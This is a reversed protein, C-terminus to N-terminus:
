TLPSDSFKCEIVLLREREGGKVKWLSIDPRGRAKKAIEKDSDVSLLRSGEMDSNLLLEVAENDRRLVFRNVDAKEVSYGLEGLAELVIGAVYLEYLRWALMVLLYRGGRFPPQTVWIGKRLQELWSYANWAESLWRPAYPSLREWEAMLEEDSLPVQYRELGEAEARLRDVVRELEDMIEDLRELVPGESVDEDPGGLPGAGKAAQTSGKAESFTKDVYSKVEDLTELSRSVIEGLLLLEPSSFAPVYTMSAHLGAPYVAITRAVDAPGWSVEDYVVQFQRYLLRDRRAEDIASLLKNSAALAAETIFYASFLRDVDYVEEARKFMISKLIARSGEPFEEVYKTVLIGTMRRVRERLKEEEKM